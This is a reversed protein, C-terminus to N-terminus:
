VAIRIENEEKREASRLYKNWAFTGICLSIVLSALSAVPKCWLLGMVGGFHCCFLLAPIFCFGNELTTVCTALGFRGINQLLMGILVYYGMFPLILCWKELMLVALGAVEEKATFASVLEVRFHLLLIASAILFCTVTLLTLGFAKKIRAMKGAGYNMACFPQFGQGFGIVLAYAIYLIRTAITVAAIATVGFAGAVHNLVISSISSIGQRCFNPAGGALIEKVHRPDLKAKGLMIRVNGGRKTEVYLVAVGAVQGCLSALAAGEIGLGATLILIPDLIVNLLMGVLLGIMSAGGAGALRLENYLVNSVLMFPVSCVTIRLYRVTAEMLKESSGAGMLTAMPRLTFLGAALMLMGVLIGLLVGTSAMEEAKEVEKKGLMRSVYNGSGYGFWFGIAQIISVFTFVVGVSATLTTDNLKGVWFTDTVNYVTAVIMGIMSPIAMKVLLPYISGTTIRLFREERKQEDRIGNM